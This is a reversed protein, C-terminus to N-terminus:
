KKLLWSQFMLITWLEKSYDSKGSLHRQWKEKIPKFSFFQQSNILEENLLEHAWNRLPGRLWEGIPVGFGTKPRDLIFDPLYKKLVQRLIWKNYNNKVKFKLPISWAFEVIRHDLLPLRTELSSAMAARDVKVLIDNPLYNISDLYMIQHSYDNLNFKRFDSDFNTKLPNSNLLIDKPNSWSSVLSLYIEYITNSNMLESIKYIKLGPFNIKLHRPLLFSFSYYFSDWSSPPFFQIFNIIFKRLSFPIKKLIRWINPVATHRSYGCFLEDGGDGSLCVKVQKSSFQSILYTPIQSVDSFPEDYIESLKPIINLADSPSLFFENHNTGLFSSIDKASKSEDFALEEFGITFTNIPNSSQNQMISVVASSDIGGSLFAGIPVDGLLQGSISEKLLNELQYIADIESGFFLNSNKNRITSELSWYRSSKPINGKIVDELSFEIYNGPSLKFIKEYITNPARIYGFKLYEELSNQNINPSSEPFSEISKLESAFLMTKGRFGFYLPKEGLRDRVLTLKKQKIDWLAFAFMGVIKSLTKEIGWYSIGNILTETDSRGRWKITDPLEKRLYNHNYIEGNFVIYYKKCESLMPQHGAKSLDVISLRRHAIAIGSNSDFWIGKYDPGRHELKNTMCRINEQFSNKALNTSIFGTIGCM